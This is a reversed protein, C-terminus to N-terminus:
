RGLEEFKRGPEWAVCARIKLNKPEYIYAKGKAEYMAEVLVRSYGSERRSVKRTHVQEGSHRSKIEKFSESCLYTVYEVVGGRVSVTADMTSGEGLDYFYYERTAGERVVRIPKGLLKRLESSQTEGPRIRDPHFERVPERRVAAHLISQFLGVSVILILTTGRM